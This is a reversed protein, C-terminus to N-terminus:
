STFGQSTLWTDIATKRAYLNALAEMKIIFEKVRTKIVESDEALTFTLTESFQIGEESITLTLCYEGREPNFKMKKILTM